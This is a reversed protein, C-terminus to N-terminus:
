TSTNAHKNNLFTTNYNTMGNIMQQHCYKKAGELYKDDGFLAYADALTENVGGHESNLLNEINTYRNM